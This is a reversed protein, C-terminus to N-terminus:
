SQGGISWCVLILFFLKSM